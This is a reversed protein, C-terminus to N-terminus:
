HSGSSQSPPVAPPSCSSPPPATGIYALRLTYTALELAKEESLQVGFRAAYLTRFRHVAEPQPILSPLTAFPMPPTLLRGGLRRKIGMQHSLRVLRAVALREHQEAMALGPRTLWFHSSGDLAAPPEQDAQGHLCCFINSCKRTASAARRLPVM